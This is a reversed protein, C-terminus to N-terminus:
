MTPVEMGEYSGVRKHSARFHDFSKYRVHLVDSCPVFNYDNSNIMGAIVCDHCSYGMCFQFSQWLMEHSVGKEEQKWLAREVVWM